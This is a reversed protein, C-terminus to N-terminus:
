KLKIVGSGIEVLKKQLDKDKLLEDHNVVGREPVLFGDPQTNIYEKGDVKFVPLQGEEAQKDQQDVKKLLEANIAKAAELENVVNAKDVVLKQIEEDKGKLNLSLSNIEGVAKNLENVVNGKDVVLQEIEEDKGNLTTNLSNIEEVAKKLEDQLGTIQQEPTIENKKAM